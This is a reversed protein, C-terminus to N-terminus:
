WVDNHNLAIRMRRKERAQSNADISPNPESPEGYGDCVANLCSILKLYVLARERIQEGQFTDAIIQRLQCMQGFVQSADQAQACASVAAQAEAETLGLDVLSSASASCSPYNCVWSPIADYAEQCISIGRPVSRHITLLSPGLSAQLDASMPSPLLPSAARPKYLHYLAEARAVLRSRVSLSQDM